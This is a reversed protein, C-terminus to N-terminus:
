TTSAAQVLVRSLVELVVDEIKASSEQLSTTNFNINDFFKQVNINVVKPGASAVAKSGSAAATQNAKTNKAIEALKHTTENDKPTSAKATVPAATLAKNSGGKM